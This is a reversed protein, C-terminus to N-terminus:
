WPLDLVRCRATWRGGAVGSVDEVMLDYLRGQRGITYRDGVRLPLAARARISVERPAEAPAYDIQYDHAGFPASPTQANRVTM